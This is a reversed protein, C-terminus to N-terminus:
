NTPEENSDDPRCQWREHVDPEQEIGGDIQDCGGVMAASIGGAANMQRVINQAVIQAQEFATRGNKIIDMDIMDGAYVRNMSPDALQLTSCVQIYGSPSVSSPAINSNPKQGVCKIQTRSNALECKHGPPSCVLCDCPIKEGTSLTVEGTQESVSLREGLIVCIGLTELETLVRQHINAGFHANLLMEILHVLTVHKDPYQTKADAALEIGALGGVVVTNHGAKLRQREQQLAKMGDQKTETGVRSPLTASSGTALMLYDYNMSDGSRLQM